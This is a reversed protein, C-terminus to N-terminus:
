TVARLGGGVEVLEDRVKRWVCESEKARRKSQVHQGEGVGLM